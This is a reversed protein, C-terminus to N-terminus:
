AGTRPRGEAETPGGATAGDRARERAILEPLRALDRLRHPGLESQWDRNSLSEAPDALHDTQEVFHLLSEPAIERLKEAARQSVLHYTWVGTDSAFGAIAARGVRLDRATALPLSLQVVGPGDGRRHCFPVPGRGSLRNGLIIQRVRLVHERAEREIRAAERDAKAQAARRELEAQERLESERREEGKGKREAQRQKREDRAERAVQQARKESVVGKAVFLDRLSAM